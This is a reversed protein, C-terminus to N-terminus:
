FHHGNGPKRGGFDIKAGALYSRVAPDRDMLFKVLGLFEELIPQHRVDERNLWKGFAPFGHQPSAAPDQVSLV